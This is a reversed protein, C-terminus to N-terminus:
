YVTVRMLVNIVLPPTPYSTPLSSPLSVTFSFKYKQRILVMNVEKNSLLM